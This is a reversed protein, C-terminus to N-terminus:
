VSTRLGISSFEARLLGICRETLPHPQIKNWYASIQTEPLEPLDRIITFADTVCSLPVASIGFGAAVAAFVGQISNSNGEEKWLLGASNLSDIAAQRYSCPPRMHVLSFTEDKSDHAYDHAKIWVLADGALRLGEKKICATVVIDLENNMLLTEMEIGSGLNIMIGTKGLKKKMSALIRHLHRPVLYEAFGIRLPMACVPTIVASFGEDSLSIIKRAYGAFIEGEPTLTVTRNNRTFLPTQLREELRSIQLSVASQTRGISDAAATFSGYDIIALFARLSLLDTDLLLTRQEQPQSNELTMITNM